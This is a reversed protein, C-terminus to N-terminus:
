ANSSHRRGQGLIPGRHGTPAWVVAVGLTVNGATVTSVTAAMKKVVGGRWEPPAADLITCTNFSKQKRHPENRQMTELEDLTASARKAARREDLLRARKLANEAEADARRIAEIHSCKVGFGSKPEQVMPTADDKRRKTEHDGRADDACTDLFRKTTAVPWMTDPVMAPHVRERCEASHWGKHYRVDQCTKCGPTRWDCETMLALAEQLERLNSEPDDM